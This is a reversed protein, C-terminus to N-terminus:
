VPLEIRGSGLCEEGQYFVCFQGPALGRDPRALRVRLGAPSDELGCPILDPGHRLKCTLGTEGPQAPRRIWSPDQALFVHGGETPDAAGSGAGAGPAVGSGAAASQHRVYVINCDRDKRVVYWPGNGLGLGSRQGITHFWYGQHQGLIKGSDIDLIPGPKKGLYHGVFDNYKIKGLFCIGQSDPRAKNPLDWAEALERVERKHLDGIPFALRSVQEQSLHSLFYTQDKVPDPARLLATGATGNEAGGAGVPATRAYHGTAVRDFSDDVKDYFAGFKIRANCFLDPSPTRGAKLEELAYSVVRDYYERQLSVLRLPVRAQQCVAEAYSLDEEWPCSGLYATEDELWIKLYYATVQHGERVLRNLAVSSDVGGSLLVATKM